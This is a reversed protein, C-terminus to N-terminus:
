ETKNHIIIQSKGSASFKDALNWGRVPVCMVNAEECPHEPNRIGVAHGMEHMITQRQVKVAPYEVTILKSDTVVPLEVLGDADTDFTSFNYGIRYFRNMTDYVPVTTGSWERSKWNPYTPDTTSPSLPNKGMKVHDGKLKTDNPSSDENTNSNNTKQLSGDEMKVDEVDAQKDLYGNYTTNAVYSGVTATSDWYPRDYFYHMLNLHYTYAGKSVFGNSPNVYIHYNNADGFYAAGKTDWTWYRTADQNIYGNASGILTTNNVIDNTMVVIDIMPPEAYPNGAIGSFSPMGTVDHVAINANVFANTFTDSADVPGIKFEQVDLDTCSAPRAGTTRCETSNKYGDGRVFLDKKSPKLREHTGPMVSGTADLLDYVVGRYENFNNLGDGTFTNGGSTDIDAWREDQAPSNVTLSEQTEWFDPLDDRDTDLPITIRGTVAASNYATTVNLTAKGGFDFAYLAVNVNPLSVGTVIKAQTDKAVADFSYDYSCDGACTEKNNTAVGEYRSTDSLTFTVDGTFSPYSGDAKKLRAVIKVNQPDWKM